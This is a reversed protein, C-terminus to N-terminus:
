ASVEARLVGMMKLANVADKFSDTCLYGCGSQMLHASIREQDESLWEGKRKLELFFVQKRAREVFIFDPWGRKVGMRKLRMATVIDRKEGSAIHTYKWTSGPAPWKDILYVLQEHLKNETPTPLAVGRQRKGKFINLQRPEVM